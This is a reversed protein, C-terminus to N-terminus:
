IVDGAANIAFAASYNYAAAPLAGLDHIGLESSWLFAHQDNSGVIGSTGVVQGQENMYRAISSGGPLSGLDVVAYYASAASCVERFCLIAPIAIALMSIMRLNLKM